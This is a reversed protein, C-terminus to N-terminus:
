SNSPLVNNLEKLKTEYESELDQIKEKADQIEFEISKITFVKIEELDPLRLKLILKRRWFRLGQQHQEIENLTIIMKNVQTIRQQLTM